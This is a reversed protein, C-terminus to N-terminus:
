VRSRRIILSRGWAHRWHTVLIEWLYQFINEHFSRVILTLSDLLAHYTYPHLEIRLHGLINERRLNVVIYHQQLHWMHCQSQSQESRSRDNHVHGSGTFVIVASPCRGRLMSWERYIGPRNPASVNQAMGSDILTEGVVVCCRNLVPIARIRVM